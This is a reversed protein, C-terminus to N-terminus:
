AGDHLLNIESFVVSASLTLAFDTARVVDAMTIPAGARMSGDAKAAIVEDSEVDGPNIITVGIGRCARAFAQAAGRLGAKSANYAVEPTGIQDLGSTSGILLIRAGQTMVPLLAQTLLIPSLLNVTLIGSTEAVPRHAFDYSPSFATEEWIGAVHILADVPGGIEDTVQGFTSPDLLDCAIWRGSAARERSLSIVEDGQAVYHAAIAAGIGRSAGTLVIRRSV